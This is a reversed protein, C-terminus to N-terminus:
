WRRKYVGRVLAGDRAFHDIVDANGAPMDSKCCFM